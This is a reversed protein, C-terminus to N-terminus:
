QVSHKLRLGNSALDGENSYCPQNLLHLRTGQNLSGVNKDLQNIPRYVTSSVLRTITFVFISLDLKLCVCYNRRMNM